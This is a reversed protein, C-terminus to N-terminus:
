GPTITTIAFHQPSIALTKLWYDLIPYSIEFVREHSPTPTERVSVIAEDILSAWRSNGIVAVLASREEDPMTQIVKVVGNITRGLSSDLLDPLDNGFWEENLRERALRAIVISQSLFDGHLSQEPLDIGFLPNM